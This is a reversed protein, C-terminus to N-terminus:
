DILFITEPDYAYCYQDGYVPYLYTSTVYGTEDTLAVTSCRYDYHFLRYEPDDGSRFTEQSILGYGHVYVYYTMSDDANQSILVQSLESNPDAVYTVNGTTIRTGEGDYTYETDGARILQNLHDYEFEESWWDLPGYIM